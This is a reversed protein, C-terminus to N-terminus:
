SDNPKSRLFEVKTSQFHALPHSHNHEVAPRAGHPEPESCAQLWGTREGVNHMRGCRRRLPWAEPVLGGGTVSRLRQTLRLRHQTCSKGWRGLHTPRHHVSAHRTCRTRGPGRNLPRPSPPWPVTGRVAVRETGHAIPSPVPHVVVAEAFLDFYWRLHWWHRQQM